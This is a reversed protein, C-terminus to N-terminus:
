RWGQPELRPREHPWRSDFEALRAVMKLLSLVETKELMSRLSVTLEHDPDYNEMMKLSLEASRPNNTLLAYRGLMLSHSLFETPHVKTRGGLLDDLALSGFREPVEDVRGEDMLSNLEALRAFLYDPAQELMERRMRAADEARGVSLYCGYLHSKLIVVQPYRLVLAESRALLAGRDKAHIYEDTFDDIEQAEADSLDHDWKHGYDPHIDLSLLRTGPPLMGPPAMRSERASQRVAQKQKRDKRRQEKTRAM